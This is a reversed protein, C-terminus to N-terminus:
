PLQEQQWISDSLRAFSDAAPGARALAEDLTLSTLPEPM